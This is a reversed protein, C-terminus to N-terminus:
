RGNEFDRKILNRYVKEVNDTQKKLSFLRSMRDRAAKGWHRRRDEKEAMELLAHALRKPKDQVVMGTEGDAVIDPLVGRNAVVLPIEMACMQMAARCSGDSGPVLMLGADCMALVDKYDDTRYGLPHVTDELGMETVPHDLIEEKHTGRGLVIIKLRSNKEQIQRAAELLVDFRRHWQVRAVIGIIIHDASFGFQERIGAPPEMPQFTDLDVAGRVTSVDGPSRHLKEVALARLRDSLVILHDAMRESFQFHHFISNGYRQAGHDTRILPATTPSRRRAVSALIHDLSGHVHIIDFDKETLLHRLHSTDSITRGLESGGDFYFDDIVEVGMEGARQGLSNDTFEPTRTCALIPRWGRRTLEACLNAIPQSPGTWKYDAYCHLVSKEM